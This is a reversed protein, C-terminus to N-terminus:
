SQLTEYILLSLLKKLRNTVNVQNNGFLVPGLLAGVDVPIMDVGEHDPIVPLALEIEEVAAGATRGPAAAVVRPNVEALLPAPAILCLARVDVDADLVLSRARNRKPRAQRQSPM